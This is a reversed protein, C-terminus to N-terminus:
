VVIKNVLSLSEDVIVLLSIKLIDTKDEQNDIIANEKEITENIQNEKKYINTTNEYHKQACGTLILLLCIMFLNKKMKDGLFIIDYFFVLLKYNLIKMTKM